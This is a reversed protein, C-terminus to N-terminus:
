CEPPILGASGRRRNVFLGCLVRVEPEWDQRFYNPPARAQTFHRGLLRIAESGYTRLVDTDSIAPSAQRLMGRLQESDFVTLLAFLIEDDPFRDDLCGLVSRAYERVLRYFGDRQQVTVELTIGGFDMDDPNDGNLGGCGALFRATSAGWSFATGCYQVEILSRMARLEVLVTKL